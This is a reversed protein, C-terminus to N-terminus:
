QSSDQKRIRITYHLRPEFTSDSLTAVGNDVRYEFPEGTAPNEPVPTATVDSLKEPLKGGNAAAYSRLAEVATLAALERDIKAFSEVVKDIGIAQFPNEPQAKYIEAAKATHDRALRLLVPYPLGRLKFQEDFSHQFQRYYFDGLVVVSELKAVDSDSMSHNAAYAQRSLKLIEASAKDLREPRQKGEGPSVEHLKWAYDLLGRWEDASLEEGQRLKMLGPVSTVLWAREGDLAQRFIPKRPPVESLAWYLNPSDPRSMLAAMNDNILGTVALSVLGSIIIPEQGIDNSLEYGIRMTHLADDVKGQNIQRKARIWLMRGVGKVLPELHPLLTYAGLERYPPQWDCETRRAALELEQMVSPLDLEDALRDFTAPDKGEAELAKDIKQRGESGMLLIADLYLIAANGPLTDALDDYTLQYKLAPTSPAVPTLEFSREAPPKETQAFAAATTFVILAFAYAFRRM